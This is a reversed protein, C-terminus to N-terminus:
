FLAYFSQQSFVQMSFAGGAGSSDCLSSHTPTKYSVPVVGDGIATGDGLVANYSNYAFGQVTTPELPSQREQKAGRVANGAVTIYFIDDGSGNQNKKHYAGPFTEHTIRLAGRTMDMVNPPPPVHPAGLTVIGLIRNLPISCRTISISEDNTTGDVINKASADLSTSLCSSSNMIGYFGLSARALWGGASHCILVVKTDSENTDSEDNDNASATMERVATAVRQLYWDFAPRTPAANALWFKVDLAGRLFVQLWDLRAIPLVRIRDKLLMIEDLTEDDIKKKNVMNTWGRRELSRVLSGQPAQPLYYDNSDNGFGPLILIKVNEPIMLHKKKVSDTSSSSSSSLASIPLSIRRRARRGSSHHHFAFSSEAVLCLLLWFAAAAATTVGREMTQKM